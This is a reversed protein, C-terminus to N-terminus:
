KENITDLYEQVETKDRSIIARLEELTKLKREIIINGAVELAVEDKFSHALNVGYSYAEFTKILESDSLLIFDEMYLKALVDGKHEM